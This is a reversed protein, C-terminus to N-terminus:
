VDFGAGRQSTAPCPSGPGATCPREAVPLYSIAATTPSSTRDASAAIRLPRFATLGIGICRAGLGCAASCVKSFRAEDLDSRTSRLVACAESYRAALLLVYGHAHGWASRVWPDSVNAVLRSGELPNPRTGRIRAMSLRACELRVRDSLHKDPLAELERFASELGDDGTVLSVAVRCRGGGRQNGQTGDGRPAHACRLLGKGGHPSCRWILVETSGRPICAGQTPPWGAIGRGGLNRAGRGRRFVPRGDM